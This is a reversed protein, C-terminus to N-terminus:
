KPPQRVVMTLVNTGGSFEYKVEDMLTKMFYIGLGGTKREELSTNLDPPQAATPDFPKGEDKIVVVIEEGKRWCAIDITGVENAYGYEIINTCAEDVAMQVNFIKRNDLGFERMSDGIFD